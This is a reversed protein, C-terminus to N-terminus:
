SNYLTNKSPIDMYPLIDKYGILQIRSNKMYDKLEKKMFVEYDGIRAASNRKLGWSEPTNKMPHFAFHTLKGPQFSDLIQKALAMREDLDFATNVPLGSISDVYPLGGSTIAEVKELSIDFTKILTQVMSNGLEQQGPKFLVPLIQEKKYVDTYADMFKGSWLIGSHADIHTPNVGFNRAVKVQALVEKAVCDPDGTKLVEQADQKYYGNEDIFGSSQDITSVPRWRYPEYECNLVLHLGLDLNPNEVSVRAAEPFWPAPVMASGSSITGFDSLELFADISSQTIGVDDQHIIAVKDKESFGMKKLIPNITM